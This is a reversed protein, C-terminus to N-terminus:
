VHARGIKIDPWSEQFALFQRTLLYIIGFILSTILGLGIGIAVARPIKKSELWKCVPYLIFSVLFAFSLPVFLVSGFYLILGTLLILLVYKLTSTIMENIM